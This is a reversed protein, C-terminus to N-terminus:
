PMLSRAHFGMRHSYGTACPLPEDEGFIRLASNISALDANAKKLRTEYRYEERKSLFWSLNQESWRPISPVGFILDYKRDFILPGVIAGIGAAIPPVLYPLYGSLHSVDTIAAGIIAGM